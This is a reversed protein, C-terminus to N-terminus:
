FHRSTAAMDVHDHLEQVPISTDVRLREVLM